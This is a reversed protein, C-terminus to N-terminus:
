KFVMKHQGPRKREKLKGLQNNICSAHSCHDVAQLGASPVDPQGADHHEPVHGSVGLVQGHCHDDGLNTSAESRRVNHYSPGLCSYAAVLYSGYSSVTFSNGFHTWNNVALTQTPKNELLIKSLLHSNCPIYLKGYRIDVKQLM